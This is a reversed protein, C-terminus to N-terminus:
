QVYIEDCCIAPRKTEPAERWVPIATPCVGTLRIYRVPKGTLKFSVPTQKVAYDEASLPPITQTGADTFHTGDESVAITVSSPHFIYHRADQLFHTSVSNVPKGAGLDVVAVLDKGYLYLWNLSFDNGGELGDTLTQAGKGPFEPPPPNVLSVRARFAISNVWPRAFLNDWEQQYAEPSIGGEALTTVGSEKCLATFKKVREPWRPNVTYTNGNAVLYGNPETGFFRSQQLVTYELPLRATYVRKLLAAQGEVAAEAKDLLQSYGDIAIPSLYNSHNNVPNGYIDLPAHTQKLTATLADMYQRINKGAKGYYGDLFDNQLKSADTKPNWLYKAQVYANFEAMDSHTDGSGQSFVGSVKHGSMYQLNPQLNAYDPFPALYNTFQTTYDWVFLHATVAGWTDLNKRFAAASPITALPEQRLADISSLMIVVNSAPKTHLPPKSSYLYSLTTFQQQPFQAAVKNVFRILSGSPGGEEADTKSCQDCTCYGGGDEQSISWYMADPNAAIAKRLSDVVLHYVAENSLCLQTPQRIGKVQAFYEPHAAFWTRPPVLKFFSHGWLGWLDEFRHLKHWELYENDFAAPYYTERYTFAPEQQDHLQAPLRLEKSVPVTAPSQSYKRCGFYQELLTYVGYVVGKGSGGIIYLDRADTALMFGEPKIKGTNINAAHDTRGIFIAPQTKDKYANEKIIPLTAGSLQQVYSKLVDAAHQDNKGGETPLVIVYNSKGGSVLAIDGTLSQCGYGFLTMMYLLYTM